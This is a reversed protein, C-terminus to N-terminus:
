VIVPLYSAAVLACLFAFVMWSVWDRATYIIPDDHMYGRATALWLRCQWFLLLPVVGWLTKPHFYAHSATDSQIYLTLIMASTFSAAVGMMMLMPLDQTFYGRRAAQKGHQMEIRLLESVRKILALSLFTFSSFGLLWLSVPHASAEGGGFVRVSYLATLVFIDVLPMEKLRVNYALSLLAYVLLAHPSGGYWGLGVGLALLVPAAILGHAISAAGSAFPRRSKRPHARDAGLDCIDNLLYISSAIACFAGFVEATAIWGAVDDFNGACLMPVAVLLNKVWQYPRMARLLAALRHHGREFTAEIAPAAKAAARAVGAPANVVIAAAAERWVALDAQANGAYVFGQAGFREVLAAAKAAGGRNTEGDSAIVEDFIGLEAAIRQAVSDDAATALVLYRGKAKEECLYDLLAQDYPLTAADFNWRSALEAKLRAKGARLWPPIKLASRWDALVAAVAAERLTDIPLLTGDLDVCLPLLAAPRPKGPLAPAVTMRGASDM